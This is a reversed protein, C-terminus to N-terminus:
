ATSRARAILDTLVAALEAGEALSLRTEQGPPGGGPDDHGTVTLYPEAAGPPYELVINMHENQQHWLEMGHGTARRAAEVTPYQVPHLSCVVTVFASHRLEGQDHDTTECWAPCGHRYRSTARRALRTLRCTGKRSSRPRLAIDLATTIETM